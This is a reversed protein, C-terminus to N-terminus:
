IGNLYITNNLMYALIIIIIGAYSYRILPQKIHKMTIPVSLINGVTYYMMLRNIGTFTYGALMVIFNVILLIFVLRYEQIDYIRGKVYYIYTFLYCASILLTTTNGKNDNIYREYGTLLEASYNFLVGFVIQLVISIIILSINFIKNNKIGFIFYVPAFVLASQHICFSLFMLITFKLLNRKIIYPYSLITIAIALHQRLVYFSQFSSLLFIAISIIIYPSYKKSTEVYAFTHIIAIIFLSWRFDGLWGGIRLIYRFVVEPCKLFSLEYFPVDIWNVTSLEYYGLKYFELDPLSNIDVFTKLFIVSIYVAIYILNRYKSDKGIFLSCILIIFTIYLLIM